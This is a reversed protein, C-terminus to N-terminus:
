RGGYLPGADHDFPRQFPPVTPGWKEPDFGIVPNIADPWGLMLISRLHDSVQAGVTRSSAIEQARKALDGVNRVVRPWDLQVAQFLGRDFLSLNLDAPLDHPGM